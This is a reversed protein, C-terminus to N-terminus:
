VPDANETPTQLSTFSANISGLDNRGVISVYDKSFWGSLGNLDGHYLGRSDDVATVQVVQGEKLTLMGPESYDAEVQVKFPLSPTSDFGSQIQKLGDTLPNSLFSNAPNPISPSSDPLSSLAAIENDLGALLDKLSEFEDMMIEPFCLLPM